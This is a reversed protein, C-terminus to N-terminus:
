RDDLVDRRLRRQEQGDLPDDLAQAVPADRHKNVARV